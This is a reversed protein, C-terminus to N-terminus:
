LPVPLRVSLDWIPRLEIVDGPEAPVRRAWELAEEWSGIEFIWYGGVVEKAEILPGDTVKPSGSDFTVRAGKALPYLGDLDLITAAKALEDNFKGMKDLDELAPASTEDIREAPPTGPQYGHPIMLMLFKM